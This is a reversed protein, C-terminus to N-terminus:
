HAWLEARRWPAPVSLIGAGSSEGNGVTRSQWAGDWAEPLPYPPTVSEEKKFGFRRYYAPDGLVFIRAIGMGDVQQMGARVMLGGIGQRQRNPTVALPGLLAVKEDSDEIGCITFIVHAVLSPGRMGVLSRIAEGGQLLERVLPLLDEDPFAQPYLTAISAFDEPRYERIELKHM